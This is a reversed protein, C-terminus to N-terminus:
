GQSRDLFKQAIERVEEVEFSEFEAGMAFDLVLDAAHNLHKNLARKTDRLAQRPQEALRHALAIAEDALRDGSVVRNAMGVRVAEEAPIKEGLFIYEKTRLLSMYLPWSAVGGDGPVLGVNVHTDALYTGEALLVIDALVAITCGLGVAPGNVAAVVPLDCSIMSRVLREATRLDRRRSAVDDVNRVFNPIYGGTCFARGAGTLVVAAAEDDTAVLPWFDVLAQRLDDSMANLQEPKNMTVIRVPGDAEVLLVPALRDYSITIILRGIRPIAVLRCGRLEGVLSRFKSIATAAGRAAVPFSRLRYPRRSTADDGSVWWLWTNTQRVSILRLVARNPHHHTRV